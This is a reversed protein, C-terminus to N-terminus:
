FDQSQKLISKILKPPIRHLTKVSQRNVRMGTSPVLMGKKRTKSPSKNTDVPHLNLEFNTFFDTPKSYNFGYKSYSTTTRKLDKRKKIIPMLRMFGRPNEICYKLKPNRKKFYEIIEFTKKLLKDGDRGIKTLPKMTKNKVERHPQKFMANLLTYSICPPSAHIFDVRKPLRKDKKYDWKLIDVCIDCESKNDIDIGIVRYNFPSGGAIKKFSGTGSFLELATKM